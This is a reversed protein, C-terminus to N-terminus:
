AWATLTLLEFTETVRGQSDARNAFAARARDLAGRTLPPPADALVGTLGQTRLDTLLRDLSRYSVPLSHSDVVQRQFGARALLGSAIQNDIQPHVRAAPRDGDAQQLVARLTALTGAGTICAILLGGPTLARRLHILAGPLDNVTDLALLSVILPWQPPPLPREEDVELKTVPHGRRELQEALVGAADGLLLTPCPDLRMFDLRDLVEDALHARLFQDEPAACAAM